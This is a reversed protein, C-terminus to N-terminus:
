KVLLAEIKGYTKPGVIGDIVLGYERQMERVCGDTVTGFYGTDSPYTFYGLKRLNEQLQVVDSGDMGIRLNRPPVKKKITIANLAIMVDGVFNQWTKKVYGFSNIPDTRRTPDLKDHGILKTVPDLSYKDCLSAILSVYNQYSKMNDITGGFCLEIGLAGDNADIGFMQKDIGVVSRVHWAKEDEPICNIVQKDDVFYHASAEIENATKIFYDVNQQATSSFNGTDHCVIFTIGANKQGSRRLSPTSLFDNTINM